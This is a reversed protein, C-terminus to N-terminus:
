AELISYRTQLKEGVRIVKLKTKGSNVFELIKIYYRSTPNIMWDYPQGAVKIRIIDRMGNQTKVERIGEKVDIIIKTEGVPAIWLEEYGKEKFLEKRKEEVELVRQNFTKPEIKEEKETM